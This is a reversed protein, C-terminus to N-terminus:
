VNDLMRQRLPRPADDAREHRRERTGEGDREDGADRDIEPRRQARSGLSGTRVVELTRHVDPPQRDV